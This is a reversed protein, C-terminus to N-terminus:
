SGAQGSPGTPAAAGAPTAADAPTAGAPGEDPAAGALEASGRGASGLEAGAAGRGTTPGTAPFSDPLRRLHKNMSRILLVMAVALLLIILLALPGAIGDSMTDGFDNHAPPPPTAGGEALFGFV